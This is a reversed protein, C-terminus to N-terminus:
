SSPEVEVYEGTVPDLRVGKIPVVESMSKMWDLSILEAAVSNVLEDRQKITTTGLADALLQALRIMSGSEGLGAYQRKRAGDPAAIRLSIAWNGTQKQGAALEILLKGTGTARQYTRDVAWGADELLDLWAMDSM